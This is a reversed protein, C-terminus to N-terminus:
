FDLVTITGPLAVQNALLPYNQSTGSLAVVQRDTLISFKNGTQVTTASLNLDLYEEMESLVVFGSPGFIRGGVPTHYISRLIENTVAQAQTITGGPVIDAAHGQAFKAYVTVNLAVSNPGSVSISDTLPKVSEIYNFVSTLLQNTPLITIPSGTDIASDIDTTGATILVQVTGLGFPYRLVTASVVSPDAQLAWQEYDTVTGGRQKSQLRLLIRTVAEQTTEVDRADALGPPLATGTGSIGPASVTLITGTNLNQNQGTLVSQVPIAGTPGSLTVSTTSNYQNGTPVHTFPTAVAITTGSVGTVAIDGVASTPQIFGSGFLTILHQEVADRRANQPFVDSSIARIDAYAGAVVGGVVRSRVWWDSDTQDINIEPRLAALNRLYEDAVQSPTKISLSM